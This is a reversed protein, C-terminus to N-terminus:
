KSTRLAVINLQKTEKGRFRSIDPTFLIDLYDGISINIKKQKNANWYIGPWTIKKSKLNLRLHQNDKGIFKYDMVILNNSKLILPNNGTGYPELLNFVHYINPTLYESSIDADFLITTDPQQLIIGMSLQKLKQQFSHLSKYHLHFGAAIDHGGWGDLLDSCKSLLDTAIVSRQTRVSGIILSTNLQTMVIAPASFKQSFRSALIGTIGRCLNKELVVILKKEHDNYSTKALSFLRSFAEEGIQQRKKNFNNIKKAFYTADKPTTACLLNVAEHAEGLRGAANIAPAIKFGIDRSTYSKVKMEMVELLADLGMRPTQIAKYSLCKLAQKVFIRNENELPMVDAITAIGTLDISRFIVKAINPAGYLVLLNHLHFIADIEQLQDTIYRTINIRSIIQLPTESNIFNFKFNKSALQKFHPKIDIFKLTESYFKTFNKQLTPLDFCYVPTYKLYQILRSKGTATMSHELYEHYHEIKLGNMTQILDLRIRNNIVTIHLLSIVENFLPHGFMSRTSYYLAWRVKMVLACGCLDAFVNKSSDIKPNVIAVADPLKRPINHHDVIIVDIKNKNAYNVESYNSIGCDVTIILDINLKIAYDIVDNSLGYVDHNRPVAWKIQEIGHERLTELMLTVATVGDTDRDGYILIREQKELAVNIRHILEIMGSYLFPNHLFYIDDELFFLLQHPELIGRRSLISASLLDINYQKALSVIVNKTTHKKHWDEQM